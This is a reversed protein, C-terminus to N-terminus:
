RAYGKAVGGGSIGWTLASGDASAAPTMVYTDSTLLGNQAVPTITIVGNETVVSAIKGIPSTQNPQIGNTGGNCGTM